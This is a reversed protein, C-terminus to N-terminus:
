AWANKLVRHFMLNEVLEKASPRCVPNPDLMAKLLNQLQLSHGPLLPLKGKKLNNSQHPKLFIFASSIGLRLRLLSDMTSPWNFLKNAIAQVLETRRAVNM